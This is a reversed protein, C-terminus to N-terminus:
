DNIGMTDESFFLAIVSILYGQQGPELPPFRHRECIAYDRRHRYCCRAMNASVVRTIAISRPSVFFIHEDGRVNGEATMTAM